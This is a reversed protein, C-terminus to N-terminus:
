RREDHLPYQFYHGYKLPYYNLLANIGSLSSYLLIIFGIPSYILLCPISISNYETNELSKPLESNGIISLAM